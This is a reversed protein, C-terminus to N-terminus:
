AGHHPACLTRRHGSPDPNPSHRPAPLHDSSVVLGSPGGLACDNRERTSPPSVACSESACSRVPRRRRDQIPAVLDLAMHPRGRNYHDLWLDLLLRLHREGIVIMFDFFERRASGISRECHSNARPARYPTRIVEVGESELVADFGSTFKADRDHIVFRTPVDLDQIEYAV